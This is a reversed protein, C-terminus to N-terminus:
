KVCGKDEGDTLWAVPIRIFCIEWPERVTFFPEYICGIYGPELKVLQAYGFLGPVITKSYKWTKGDDYSLRLTGNARKTMHFNNVFFIRNKSGLEKDSSVSYRMLGSHCWRGKLIEDAKYESWSQGGDRSYAVHRGRDRARSNIMLSGDALEVVLCENFTLDKKFPVYDGKKWTKANDDSYIVGNVFRRAKANIRIVYFMPVVIRGAHRGKKLQIGNAPSGSNIIGKENRTTKTIDQPGSWTKGDDDSIRLFCRQSTESDHDDTMIKHHKGASCHYGWPFQEYFLLIRGDALAVPSPNVFVEEKDAHIIQMDGWTKGNDTSRKLVIDNRAHDSLLFRAEAFALLVGKTSRTITPIRFHPYGNEGSEFIVTSKLGDAAEYKAAEGAMSLTAGILTAVLLTYLVPENM